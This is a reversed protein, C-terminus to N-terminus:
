VNYGHLIQCIFFDTFYTINKKCFGPAITGFGKNEKVESKHKPATWDMFSMVWKKDVM